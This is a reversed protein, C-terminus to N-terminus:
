RWIDAMEFRALAVGGVFDQTPHRFHQAEIPAVQEEQSIRPRHFQQTGLFVALAFGRPFFEALVLADPAGMVDGGVLHLYQRRDRQHAVDARRAVEDVDQISDAVREAALGAPLIARVLALPEPSMAFGAWPGAIPYVPRTRMCTRAAREGTHAAATAFAPSRISPGANSGSLRDGRVTAPNAATSPVRIKRFRTVSLEHGFPQIRRSRPDRARRTNCPAAISLVAPKAHGSGSAAASARANPAM